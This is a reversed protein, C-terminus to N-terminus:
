KVEIKNPRRIGAVSIWEDDWGGKGITRILVDDGSVEDVCYEPSNPHLKFVTEGIVLDSAKLESREMQREYRDCIDKAKKYEYEQIM